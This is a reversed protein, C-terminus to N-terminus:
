MQSGTVFTGWQTAGSLQGLESPSHMKQSIPFRVASQFGRPTFGTALLPPLLTLAVHITPEWVHWPAM